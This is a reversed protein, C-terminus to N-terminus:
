RRRLQALDRDAAELRSQAREVKRQAARAETEAALLDQRAAAVRADADSAAKTLETVETRLARVKEEAAQQRKRADRAAKGGRATAGSRAVTAVPVPPGFGTPDLDRQLRGRELLDRGEDEVAAARLTTAIRDLTSQSASHGAESLVKEASSVLHTIANREAETAEAVAAPQGGSLVDGHAKRLKEGAVLLSRVKMREKRAIQNIAWASVTPKRLAKIADAGVKDGADRFKRALSDRESTFQDLPLSYLREIEDEVNSPV